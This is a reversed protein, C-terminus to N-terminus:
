ANKKGPLHKKLVNILEELELPKGLHDNMGAAFCKEIDEKFVNATMAAIPISKNSNESECFGYKMKHLNYVEEFSRIKRTTEYGDMEPMHIDTIIMDYKEPNVGFMELAEKGNKACEIVVGTDELMSIVIERNIAIDEAILITYGLFINKISFPLDEKLDPISNNDLPKGEEFSLEFGFNTGKDLESEFWIKGGMLEIINKTIVLGLGTGGFRRSISKDAQEFPTFLLKKQEKSIGIGTDIVNFRLTCLEERGTVQVSLTICGEEPTFKVANSLLNTLVQVLRQEDTIIRSPLLPDLNIILNQRKEIMKFEIMHTVRKIMRELNFEYFSLNFKGAEIKSVDLVDNIIGLLHMSAENIKSVCYEMRSIDNSKKAITTMGIIANMPTRMEHSMRSIFNTKALNATEAQEKASVLAREADAKVLLSVMTNAALKMIQADGDKWEHNKKYHEIGMIGWFEGYLTVPIYICSKLGPFELTKVIRSKRGLKSCTIHVDGRTIFTDYFFNGNTFKMEKRPAPNLKVKHAIWEYKWCLTNTERDLHALFTRSVNMYMAVMMIANNILIDSNEPSGFSNTLAIILENQLLRREQASAKSQALFAIERYRKLKFFCVCSVSIAFFVTIVM